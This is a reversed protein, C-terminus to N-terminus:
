KEKYRYLTREEVKTNDDSQLSNDQWDSWDSWKEYYYTIITYDLYQSRVTYGNEVSTVYLDLYYQYGGYGKATYYVNVVSGVEPIYNIKGDGYIDDYGDPCTVTNNVVRPTTFQSSDKKHEGKWCVRGKAVYHTRESSILKFYSQKKMLELTSESMKDLIPNGYVEEVKKDYVNWGATDTDSIEDTLLPARYDKETVVKTTRTSSRYQKKTEINYNSSNVGQPLGELWDSWNKQKVIENTNVKKEEKNNEKEEQKDEKIEEKGLSVLIEITTGKNVKTGEKTMQSIVIDKLVDDSNQETINVNLGINSLADMAEDKTMGVVNIVEVKEKSVAVKLKILSGKEIKTDAKISQELIHNIEEENDTEVYEYEIVFGKKALIESGKNSELKIVNPVTIFLEKVKKPKRLLLFITLCVILLIIIVIIIKNNKEKKDSKQKEENVIENKDINEIKIEKEEDVITIDKNVQKNEEIKVIEDKISIESVKEENVNEIEKESIDTNDQVKDTIEKELKNLDEEKLDNNNTKNGTFVSITKNHSDSKTNEKYLKTMKDEDYNFLISEKEINCYIGELDERLEKASQYRDKPYYSCAKLIIEAIERQANIPPNMKEGSIRLYLANERADPTIKNPYNPLFPLRNYNFFRYLMIGLSYIDVTKNGRESKYLEPAMYNDTGRKSMNSANSEINKAVGFDGIKYVGKSNVFINEPKIDRHVIQYNECDELAKCVDIAMKLIEKDTINNEYIYDELNTLLEMKINIIWGIEKNKPLIEYDEITVVNESDKFSSMFKIEEVWKSVTEELYVTIDKQSMGEKRLFNIESANKPIEIQKIASYSIIGFEEKKAKYVKGYSGEGISELEKWAGSFFEKLNDNNNKKNKLKM